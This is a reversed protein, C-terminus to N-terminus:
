GPILNRNRKHMTPTQKKNEERMIPNKNIDSNVTTLSEATEGVENFGSKVETLISLKGQPIVLYPAWIFNMCVFETKRISKSIANQAQSCVM